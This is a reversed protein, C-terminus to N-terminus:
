SRVGYRGREGAVDALLGAGDAVIPALGQAFEGVVIIERRQALPRLLVARPQPRLGVADRRHRQRAVRQHIQGFALARLPACRGDM